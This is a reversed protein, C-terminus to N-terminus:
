NPKKLSDLSIKQAKPEDVYRPTLKADTGTEIQLEKERSVIYGLCTRIEDLTEQALPHPQGPPPTADKIVNTLVKRMMVLSRQEISLEM